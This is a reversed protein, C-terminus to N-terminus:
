TFGKIQYTKRATEGFAAPISLALGLLAISLFGRFSSHKRM